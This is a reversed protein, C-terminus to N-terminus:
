GKVPSNKGNEMAESACDAIFKENIDIDKEMLEDSTDIREDSSYYDVRDGGPNEVREAQGDPLSKISKRRFSIEPDVAIEMTTIDLNPERAKELVNQYITTESTSQNTLITGPEHGSTSPENGGKDELLVQSATLNDTVGKQMLLEKMAILVSSMTDLREEVSDQKSKKKRKRPTPQPTKDQEEDESTHNEDSTENMGESESESDTQHGSNDTDNMEIKRTAKPNTLEEDESLFEQDVTDHDGIDMRVVDGDDYFQIGSTNNENAMGKVNKNAASTTPVVVSRVKSKNKRTNIPSRGVIDDRHGSTSSPSHNSNVNAVLTTKNKVKEKTKEGKPSKVKRKKDERSRKPM